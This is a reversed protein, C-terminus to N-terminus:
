QARVFIADGWALTGNPLHVLDYFSHLQYGFGVLYNALDHYLVGGEFLDKFGVEACIVKIRGESLFCGLSELVELEAGQADIKLIDIKDVKLRNMDEDLRVTQVTILEDIKHYKSLTDNNDIPKLLSSSDVQNTRYMVTSGNNNSVASNVPILRSEGSALAALKNFSEPIPEYAIIRAGPCREAYIMSDRGDAAGVEVVVATDEGALRIQEDLASILSVNQSLRRVQFGFYGFVKQIWMVLIIKM